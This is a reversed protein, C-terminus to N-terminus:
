QKQLKFFYESTKRIQFKADVGGGGGWWIAAQRSAGFVQNMM